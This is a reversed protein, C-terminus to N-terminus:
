SAPSTLLSQRCSEVLQQAKAVPIGTKESLEASTCQAVQSPVTLGAAALLELTKPGVGKVSVLPIEPRGLSAPPPVASVEGDAGVEPTTRKKEVYSEAVTKLEQARNASMGPIKQLEEVTAGAIEEPSRFAHSYLIMAFSEEVGLGEALIKKAKKAMEDLKTESYIDINWGTLEAALRVNQGKKGIALSLQDDPVIIEMSRDKENVIVKAVEAPSIANCVFKAPDIDWAVIDIKEGRLEQVVNQVRSGKMGVCAGVPDVDSDKSYVAIKSRAGPERAARKIEVIGESVEPVEMEFLKTLLGPDRRSLILSPGRASKQLALFLAQIRDGSKYEEVKVQERPPLVAETRGLDVIVNGKEVRRVIGTILEGVRNKYENYVIDREADRMKQIIVQQATQAAVRGLFANPLKEGISDGLQADPDLQRSEEAGIETLPNTIQEVFTRFQFLEVEGLEENFRAEIEREHGYKKRAATLMAAEIAEILIEKPISKEKGVQEIIKALNQLM